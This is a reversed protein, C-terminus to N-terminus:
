FFFCSLLYQTWGIRFYISSPSNRRKFILSIIVPSEFNVEPHWLSLKISAIGSGRILFFVLLKQWSLTCPDIYLTKHQSIFHICKVIAMRSKPTRKYPPESSDFCREFHKSRICFVGFFISGFKQEVSSFRPPLTYGHNVYRLTTNIKRRAYMKSETYLSSSTMNVTARHFKTPLIWDNWFLNHKCWLFLHVTM